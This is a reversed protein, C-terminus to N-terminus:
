HYHHYYYYHLRHYCHYLSLILFLLHEEESLADPMAIKHHVTVCTPHCVPTPLSLVTQPMPLMLSVAVYIHAAPAFSPHTSQPVHFSLLLSSAAQARAPPASASSHAILAFNLSTSPSAVSLSTSSVLFSSENKLCSSLLNLLSFASNSFFDAHWKLKLASRLFTSCSFRM